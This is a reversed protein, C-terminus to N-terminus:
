FISSNEQRISLYQSHTIIIHDLLSIGVLKGIEIIKKTSEIDQISPTKDGSPHNHVIIIAHSRKKIAETFIEKPSITIENSTGTYLIKKEILKSKNDLFLVVFNEQLQDKIDSCLQYVTRPSDIVNSNIAIKNDIRKAISATAIIKLAKADGIGKNQILEAYEASLLNSLGDYKEILKQSLSMVSEQKTGSQLIIALLEVDSLQSEGVLKFKERPKYQDNMDRFKSM